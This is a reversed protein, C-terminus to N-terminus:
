WLFVQSMYLFGIVSLCFSAPQSRKVVLLTLQQTPDWTSIGLPQAAVSAVQTPVFHSGGFFFFLDNGKTACHMLLQCRQRAVLFVCKQKRHPVQMSTQM